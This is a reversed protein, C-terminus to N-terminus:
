LRSVQDECTEEKGRCAMEKAPGKRGITDRAIQRM